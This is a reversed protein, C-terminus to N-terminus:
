SYLDNDEKMNHEDYMEKLNEINEISGDPDNFYKLLFGQLLCATINIGLSKFENYFAEFKTTQEDKPTTKSKVIKPKEEENIGDGQITKQYKELKIHEDIYCFNLFMKKMESKKMFDFEFMYDIRGPRILAKDLVNKYNSSMIIIQGETSTIGDLVNLIASFTIMNKSEDKSKREQFIVIM